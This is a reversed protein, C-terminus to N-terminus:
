RAAAAAAHLCDLVAAMARPRPAEPSRLLGPNDELSVRGDYSAKRLASFYGRLDYAIGKGTEPLAPTAVHVHALRAGADAVHGLPENEAAMHFLDALLKVNPHAVRDVFAAGEDVGNFFNCARGFLPEMAIVVGYKAATEGALRAADELQRWALAEDTFGEPMRRAGGSGFVMVRAGVAAARRLVLDM